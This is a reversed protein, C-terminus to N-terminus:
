TLIVKPAQLSVWQGEKHRLYGTLQDAIEVHLAYHQLM